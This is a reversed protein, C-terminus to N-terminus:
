LTLPEDTDPQDPPPKLLWRWPILALHFRNHDGGWVKWAPGVLRRIRSTPLLVWCDEDFEQAWRESECVSVGSPEKEGFGDPLKSTEFEICLNGTERAKEDLKHEIYAGRFMTRVFADERAQGDLLDKDFGKRALGKTVSGV